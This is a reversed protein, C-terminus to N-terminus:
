RAPAEPVLRVVVAAEWALSGEIARRVADDSVDAVLASMRRVEGRGSLLVDLGLAYAENISSLESRARGGLVRSRAIEVEASDPPRSRLARVEEELAARAEDLRDAGTGLYALVVAGGPLPTVACAISYALGRKERLELQMRRSLAEGAVLVVATGAPDPTRALWGAAVYATEKRTGADVPGAKVSDPLPPCEVAAGAPIGGFLSALTGRGEAAAEPSVLTAIINAGAFLRARLAELDGLGTRMIVPPAPFLPAAFPHAGFISAWVASRMEYSGAASRMGVERALARKAEALDRATMPSTLCHSVLLAAAEAISGAPAELRVFAFAPSLLYDDQPVYPNDGYQVRAGLADLRTSLTRGAASSELVSMLLEPAGTPAAGECCARGRLLIHLAAVPSGPRELAAAMCGNPLTEVDLPAEAPAREPERAPEGMGSRERSPPANSGAGPPMAPASPIKSGMAPPVPGGAAGMGSPMSPAPPMGSGMGPPMGHAGPMPASGGPAESKRVLCANFTLEGFRKELVQACDKARVNAVGDSAELYRAGGLAIADGRSMVYFHYMERDFMEGSLYSVRAREVEDATPTWGALRELAAPVKRYAAEDAAAAAAAEGMGKGGPMGAGAAMGKGMGGMGAGAAGVHIRLAAFGRHIELSVEPAPLSLEALDKALPSSEGELMKAVLIGASFDSEGVSPFPLLIDLGTEMGPASCVTTENGWEPPSSAGCPRAAPGAPFYEDILHVAAEPDFSGMLVIRMNSPTYYTRYFSTLVSDSMAEVTAAYGIVPETLLSGRYLCRDVSDELVARPDDHERRMEELIVKREKDIEQPLFASHLLMQSLIDLGKELDAAPVLLFFVTTEKRTFANLFGGVDDVWGSIEERTYRESGDFALHEIFHTAGLTKSTECSSGAKVAAMVCVVDSGARRDLVIEPGGAREIVTLPAAGSRAAPSFLSLAAAVALAHLRPTGTM